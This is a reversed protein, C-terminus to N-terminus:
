AHSQVLATLADEITHGACANFLAQKVVEKDHGNAGIEHEYTQQAAPSLHRSVFVNIASILSEDSLDLEVVEYKEKM